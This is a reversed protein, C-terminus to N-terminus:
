EGFISNWASELIDPIRNIISPVSGSFAGFLWAEGFSNVYSGGFYSLTGAVITQTVVRRFSGCEGKSYEILSSSIVTATAGSVAINRSAAGILAGIGGGFASSLIAVDDGGLIAAVGAGAVVGVLLVGVVKYASGKPDCFFIPNCKCFAYLNLGGSLGIPDKSLWRGTVADYWWMRFNTLGTVASRERGQFRYRVARLEAASVDVEESLVSGWADYTWRAVINGSADAYGWVTGQVDTLATYTRSGIRVALLRDIGEGWVYSRLVNGGEDLDAVVQWNDDYVHRETGEANTTTVRRGLADYAYITTAGTLSRSSVTLGSQVVTEAPLASNPSLTTQPTTHSSRDLYTYAVTENNLPDLSHTESILVSGKQVLPSSAAGRTAAGEPSRQATPPYEGNNALREDGNNALGTLRTRTLGVRTLAPSGNQRTQWTSSERWWDGNLSVYRTDNSVIRDTDNWDIQNNLNMDSVTLNREGLSNYCFYTYTLPTPTPNENLAYARTAVLQNATNYENSTVLLSGRFGPRTEAIVRGLADYTYTTTLGEADTM